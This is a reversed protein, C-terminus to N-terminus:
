GGGRCSSAPSGAGAPRIERAPRRLGAPRGRLARAAPRGRGSGAPPLRGTIIALRVGLNNGPGAQQALWGACPFDEGARSYHCAMIHLDGRLSEEGCRITCTLGEHLERRYRPIDEDPVCGVRWPCSRCQHIRDPETM